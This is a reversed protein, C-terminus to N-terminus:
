KSEDKVENYIKKSLGDMYQLPLGTNFRTAWESFYSTIEDSENPFRKSLFSVFVDLDKVGMDVGIKRINEIKM